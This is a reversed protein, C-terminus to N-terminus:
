LRLTSLRVLQLHLAAARSSGPPHAACWAIILFISTTESYAHQKRINLKCHRQRCRQSARSNSCASRTQVDVRLNSMSGVLYRACFLVPYTAACWPQRAPLKLRISYQLFSPWRLVVVALTCPVKVLGSILGPIYHYCCICTCLYLAAGLVLQM